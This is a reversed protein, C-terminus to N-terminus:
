WNPRGTIFAVILTTVAAPMPPLASRCHALPQSGAPM